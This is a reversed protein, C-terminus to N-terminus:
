RFIFSRKGDKKVFIVVKLHPMFVMIKKNEKKAKELIQKEDISELSANDLNM